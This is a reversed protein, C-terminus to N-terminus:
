QRIHTLFISSKNCLTQVYRLSEFNPILLQNVSFVLTPISNGLKGWESGKHVLYGPIESHIIMEEKLIPIKILLVDWLYFPVVFHEKKRPFYHLQPHPTQQPIVETSAWLIDQNYQISFPPRKLFICSIEPYWEVQPIDQM